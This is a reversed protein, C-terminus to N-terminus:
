EFLSVVRGGRGKLGDIEANRAAPFIFTKEDINNRLM